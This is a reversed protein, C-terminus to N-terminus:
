SVKFEALYKPLHYQMKVPYKFRKMYRVLDRKMVAHKESIIHDYSHEVDDGVYPARDNLTQILETLLDMWDSHIHLTEVLLLKFIHLNM